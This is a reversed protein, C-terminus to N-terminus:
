DRRGRWADITAQAELRQRETLRRRLDDASERAAPLEAAALSFWAYATVPDAAVGIGKLYKRGLRFMDAARKEALARAEFAELGAERKARAAAVARGAVGTSKMHEVYDDFVALLKGIDPKGHGWIAMSGDNRRLMYRRFDACWNERMARRFRVMPPTTRPSGFDQYAKEEYIQAECERDIKRADDGRGKLHQLGHGVLEHVIVAALDEPRWKIGFRGVVVLFEKLQGNKQFFDPLFAAITVSALQPKPFAADYVITVRGNRKLREIREASFPSEAYIRDIAKKLNAIGPAPALLDIDFTGAPPPAVAIIQIGRHREEGVVEAARASPAAAVLILVAGILRRM